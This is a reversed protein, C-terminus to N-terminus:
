IMGLRDFPVVKLSRSHGRVRIELNRCKEVNFIGSVVSSPPMTVISCWYSTAHATDFLSMELSRWHGRVGTELDHYKKFTLLELRMTCNTLSLQTKQTFNNVYLCDYATYFVRRSPPISQNISQDIQYLNISLVETRETSWKTVSAFQLTVTTVVIIGCIHVSNSFTKNWQTISTNM